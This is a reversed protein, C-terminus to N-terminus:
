KGKERKRERKKERKGVSTPHFSRSARALSSQAAPMDGRERSEEREEKEKREKKKKRAYAAVLSGSYISTSNLIRSLTDRNM